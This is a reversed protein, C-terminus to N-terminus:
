EVWETDAKANKARPHTTRLLLVFCRLPVVLTVVVATAVVVAFTLAMGLGLIVPAAFLCILIVIFVTEM